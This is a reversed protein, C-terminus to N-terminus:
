VKAVTVLVLNLVYRFTLINQHMTSLFVLLTMHDLHFISIGLFYVKNELECTGPMHHIANQYRLIPQNPVAITM